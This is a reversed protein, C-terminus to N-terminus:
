MGVAGISQAGQYVIIGDSFPESIVNGGVTWVGGDPDIWVSHLHEALLPTNPELTWEGAERRLITGNIGSARGGDGPTLWVGMLQPCDADEDCFPALDHWAGDSGPGVMVASGSGGVAVAEGEIAHVTLLTRTSSSDVRTWATGDHHYLIGGAGCAWVDDAGTGWVKFVAQGEHGPLTLVSWEAGNWRWLAGNGGGIGVAAYVDDDAAAWIGFVIVSSSPTTMREFTTGDESRLIMGGEGGLFVTGNEMAHVWWLDGTQGTTRREWANGDWHLVLPGSGADSGVVWVDHSSRGAVSLLGEDLNEVVVRYPTSEPGPCGVLLLSALILSRLARRAPTTTEM